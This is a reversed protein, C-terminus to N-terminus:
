NSTPDLVSASALTRELFTMVQPVVETNPTQELSSSTASLDNNTFWFHGYNPVIVKEQKIGLGVLKQQFRVSQNEPLVIEDSDGWILMFETDFRLYNTVSDILNMPSAEQYTVKGVYSDFGFLKNIVHDERTRNTYDAWEVLDFVGYASIVAKIHYSSYGEELAMMTALYGGASDGMIAIKQPDIQWEHANLVSYHLAQRVDELLGPYAPYSRTALRYNIALAAYGQEALFPGWDAYMEKSGAQYAGGHIMIVLPVDAGAEPLYLDATLHEKDTTHFVLNKKVRIKSM